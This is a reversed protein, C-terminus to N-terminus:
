QRRLAAADLLEGVTRRPKASGEQAPEALLGRLLELKVRGAQDDAVMLLLRDKEEDTLGAITATVARGAPRATSAQAAVDLLDADLRLFGALARQAPTLAGLGAPVRPELEQDDDEDFAEEDREWGGYVSLWGLYLPRLDGAALQARIRAIDPLSDEEDEEEEDNESVMELIVHEETVTMMLGDDVCYPAVVEPDLMTRPLRLMIRRSGWSALYLHADYYRRVMEAPDGRFDGGHYENTFSDATITASASFGRVEDQEAETLPRDLALFEYYQYESM